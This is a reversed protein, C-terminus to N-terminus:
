FIDKMNVDEFQEFLTKERETKPKKETPAKSNATSAAKREESKKEAQKQEAQQQEIIAQKKAEPNEALFKEYVSPVRRGQVRKGVQRDAQNTKKIKSKSGTKVDHIRKLSRTKKVRTM